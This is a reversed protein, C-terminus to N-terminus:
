GVVELVAGGPAELREAPQGEAELLISASAFSNNAVQFTGSCNTKIYPLRHVSNGRGDIQARIKM